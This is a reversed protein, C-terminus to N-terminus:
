DILPVALSVFVLRKFFIHFFYEPPCFIPKALVFPFFFNMIFLTDFWEFRYNFILCFATQTRANFASLVSTTLWLTMTAGSFSHMAWRNQTHTHSITRLIYIFNITQFDVLLSLM